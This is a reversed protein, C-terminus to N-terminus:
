CKCLIDQEHVVIYQQGQPTEMAEGAYKFYLVTDGAKVQMSIEVFLSIMDVVCLSLYANAAFLSIFLGWRQHRDAAM